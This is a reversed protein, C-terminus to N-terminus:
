GSNKKRRNRQPDSESLLGNRGCADVEFRGSSTRDSMGKAMTVVTQSAEDEEVSESCSRVSFDLLLSQEPLYQWEMLSHM